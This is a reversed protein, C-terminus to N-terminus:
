GKETLFKSYGKTRPTFGKSCELSGNLDHFVNSLIYSAEKKNQECFVIFGKIDLLEDKNMNSLVCDTETRSIERWKLKRALTMLKALIEHQISPENPQETM